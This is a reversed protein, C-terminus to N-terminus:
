KAKIIYHVYANRPRTEADGGATVTFAHNHSGGPGTLPAVTNTFVGAQEARNTAVGTEVAGYRGNWNQDYAMPHQHAAVTATAGNFSTGQPRATANSQFSGVNNGTNGGTRMATRSTNNPDGSGLDRTGNVGRLFLGRLDPTHFTSTGDGSGWATGIIQFLSDYESRSVTAGDCLLWGNPISNTNGGFAQITGIPVSSGRNNLSTELASTLQTVVNALSDIKTQLENRLSDKAGVVETALNESITKQASIVAPDPEIRVRSGFQSTNVRISLWLTKTFDVTDSIASGSGLRVSFSGNTTTFPVSNDSWKLDNGSESGYLEFIGNYQADAVPQGNSDLLVGQYNLVKTQSYALQALSLTLVLFFFQKM